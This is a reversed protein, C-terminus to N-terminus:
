ASVEKSKFLKLQVLTILMIVALLIIAKASASGFDGKEFAERYINLAISESATGPGGGTLTLILEFVRLGNVLATFVCITIAPMLLPLVIRTFRVRAGAGDVKAAEILDEPVSQLGALYIVMFYGLSQWIKVIVVAWMVNDGDGLMSVSFLSWGTSEELGIFLRGFIFQWVFGITVMNLVYPAFFLTRLANRTRLQMNLVVALGIGLVNVGVVYLATYSFTFKMANLFLGDHFADKYNDLGIFRTVASLGNWDTFSYYFGGALPYLFFVGYLLLLPTAFLLLNRNAKSIVKGM